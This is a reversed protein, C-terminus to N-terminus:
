IGVDDEETGIVDLDDTNGCEPCEDSYPDPDNPATHAPYCSWKNGCAGCRLVYKM